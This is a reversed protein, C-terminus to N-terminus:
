LDSSVVSEFRIDDEENWDIRILNHMWAIVLYLEIDSIEEHTCRIPDRAFLSNHDKAFFDTLTDLRPVQKCEDRLRILRDDSLDARTELDFEPDWPFKPMIRKRLFGQVTLRRQFERWRLVNPPLCPRLGGKGLRADSIEHLQLLTEPIYEGWVTDFSESDVNPAANTQQLAKQRGQENREAECREADLPMSPNVLLIVVDKSEKSLVNYVSQSFLFRCNEHIVDLHDFLPLSDVAVICREGIVKKKPRPEQWDEFFLACLIPDAVEFREDMDITSHRKYTQFPLNASPLEVSQVGVGTSNFIAAEDWPGETNPSVSFVHLSNISEDQMLCTLCEAAIVATPKPVGYHLDLVTTWCPPLGFDQSLEILAICRMLLLNGAEDLNDEEDERVQSTNQIPIISAMDSGTGKMHNSIAQVADFTEVAYILTPTGDPWSSEKIKELLTELIAKTTDLDPSAVIHYFYVRSRVADKGLGASQHPGIPVRTGTGSSDLAKELSCSSFGRGNTARKPTDCYYAEM